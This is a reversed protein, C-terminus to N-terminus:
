RFISFFLFWFGIAFGDGAPAPPSDTVSYNQALACAPNPAVPLTPACSQPTYKCIGGVAVAGAPCDPYPTPPTVKVPPYKTAAVKQM